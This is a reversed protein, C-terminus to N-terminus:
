QLCNQLRQALGCSVHHAWCPGALWLWGSFKKSEGEQGQNQVNRKNPGMSLELVLKPINQPLYYTPLTHLVAPFDGNSESNSCGKRQFRLLIVNESQLGSQQAAQLCSLTAVLVQATVSTKEECKERYRQLCTEHNEDCDLSPFQVHEYDLNEHRNKERGDNTDGREGTFRYADSVSASWAILIVGGNQLVAQWQTHLWPVPGLHAVSDQSACHDWLALRVSCRLEAELGSALALVASVHSAEDSSSILLVPRSSVSDSLRKLFLYWACNGSVVLTLLFALTAGIILGWRKHIQPDDLCFTRRGRLLPEYRWVQVCSGVPPSPFPLVLEAPNNGGVTSIYHEDGITVCEEVFHACLQGAFSAPITSTISARMQGAFVALNTVKWDYVHGFKFPCHVYHSNNLSFQVCMQPHRDVDSVDYNLGVVQLTANPVVACGAPPASGNWCLRASPLEAPCIPHWVLKSDNYVRIESSSLVDLLGDQTRHEFPCTINRKADHHDYYVEICLCPLLYPFSINTFLSHTTNMQHEVPPTLSTCIPGSKKRYCLRINVVPGSETRILLSHTVMDLSYNFYPVPDEVNTIFDVHDLQIEKVVNLLGLYVMFTTRTLVSGLTM